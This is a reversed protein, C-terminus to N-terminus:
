LFSAFGLIIYKGLVVYYGFFSDIVSSDIISLVISLTGTNGEKALVKHLNSFSLSM